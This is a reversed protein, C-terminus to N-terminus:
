VELRDNIGKLLVTQSGIPIGVNALRECAQAVEPTLEDPHTFHISIWLPHYRKLIRTLTPTIRYPLVVPVKTGVRLIEIHPIRRLQSLLWELKEDSLILPDGGSLLVDRINPNSAIYALAKQWSLFNSHNQRNNGVMRSRTCYRCYTSCTDAVLFLVRDPYRHVLGPVPSDYEEGLPDKSEEAAHFCEFIHPVVTRRIPQEPDVPDLLSAYYPTVSFPLTNQNHCFAKQEDETVQIIRKLQSLSTIRNQLQWRWNNWDKSSIDPFFKKRFAKTKSTPKVQYFSKVKSQRFTKEKIRGPYYSSPIINGSQKLFGSSFFIGPPELDEVSFIEKEM